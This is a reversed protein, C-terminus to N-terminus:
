LFEKKDLDHFEVANEYLIARAISKATEMNFMGRSIKEALVDYVTQRILSVTGAFCEATGCDTRILIKNAPVM